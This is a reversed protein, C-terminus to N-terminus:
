LGGAPSLSLLFLASEALLGASRFRDLSAELSCRSVLPFPSPFLPFRCRLGTTSGAIGGGYPVFFSSFSPRRLSLSLALSLSASAACAM